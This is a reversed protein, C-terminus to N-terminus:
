PIFNVIGELVAILIPIAMVLIILKGALEIKM